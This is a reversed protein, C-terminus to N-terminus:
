RVWGYRSFHYIKANQVSLVGLSINVVSSSNEILETTGNDDFYAFDVNGTSTFGLSELDLGVFELNLLINTNFTIHPLFQVSADEMNVIMTIQKDGTYASPLVNLQANVHIVKGSADAYNQNLSLSGGSSGNITSSTQLYESTLNLRGGSHQTSVISDDSYQTCSLLTIGVIFFLLHTTKM